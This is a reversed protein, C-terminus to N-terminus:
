PCSTLVFPVEPGLASSRGLQARCLVQHKRTGQLCGHQGTNRGNWTLGACILWRLETHQSLLVRRSSHEPLLQSGSPVGFCGLALALTLLPFLLTHCCLFGVLVPNCHQFCLALPETAM